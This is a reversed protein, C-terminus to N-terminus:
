LVFPVGVRGGVWVRGARVQYDGVGAVHVRAGEKWNTGRVYGYVTVDRDCKPNERIAEM